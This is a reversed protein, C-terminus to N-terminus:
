PRVPAPSTGSDGQDSPSTEYRRPPLESFAMVPEEWAARARAPAAALPRDDDLGLHRAMRLAWSRRQARVDLEATHAEQVSRRYLDLLAAPQGVAAHARSVAQRLEADSYLHEHDLASLYLAAAAPPDQDPFPTRSDM